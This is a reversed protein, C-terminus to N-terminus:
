KEKKKKEFEKQLANLVSKVGSSPLNSIQSEYRLNAIIDPM